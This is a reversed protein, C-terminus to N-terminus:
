DGGCMFSEVQLDVSTDDAGISFSLNMNSRLVTQDNVDVSIQCWLRNEIEGDVLKCGQLMHTLALSWCYESDTYISLCDNGTTTGFGCVTEETFYGGVREWEKNAFYSVFALYENKFNSISFRDGAVVARSPLTAACLVMLLAIKNLRINTM